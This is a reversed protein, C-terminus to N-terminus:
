SFKIHNTDNKMDIIIRNNLLNGHKSRNHIFYAYFHCTCHFLTSLITWHEKLKKLVKTMEKGVNYIDDFCEHGDNLSSHVTSFFFLYLCQSFLTNLWFEMFHYWTPWLVSLNLITFPIKTM